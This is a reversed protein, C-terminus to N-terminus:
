PGGDRSCLEYQGGGLGEHRLMMCQTCGTCCTAYVCDICFSPVPWQTREVIGDRRRVAMRSACTLVCTLVAGGASVQALFAAAEKSLAQTPISGAMVSLWIVVALVFCLNAPNRWGSLRAFIQATTTPMCFIVAASTRLDLMCDFLGSSWQPEGQAVDAAEPYAPAAGFRQYDKAAM